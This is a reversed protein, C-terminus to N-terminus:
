PPLSLSAGIYPASSGSLSTYGVQASLAPALRFQVGLDIVNNSVGGTSVVTASAYGAIRPALRVTAGGSLFYGSANVTGFGPLSAGTGAYGFGVYPSFNPAQVPIYYRGGLTTLYGTSGGVTRWSYSLTADWAPTVPFALGLSYLAPGFDAYNFSLASRSPPLLQAAAPQPPAALLWLVSFAVVAPLMTAALVKWRM